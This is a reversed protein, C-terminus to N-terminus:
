RDPRLSWPVELGHVEMLAADSLIERAPGDARLWGGDLLIVRECSELVFELNHSSILRTIELNNVINLLERRGRPDLDSSPEDMLLIHPQMAVVGAIAVRRKEGSSLHFPLRSRYSDDLGVQRMATAVREHAQAPSLGLNLPGFAIDDAVNANLVQDDTNQFVVGLKRHVQRRGATTGLDCGSVVVSGTFIPLTGALAMILTTKGAGNPGILGVREGHKVHFSVDQLAMKGDPYEYTLHDIELLCSM